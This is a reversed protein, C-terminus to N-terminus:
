NLVSPGIRIAKRVNPVGPAIAGDRSCAGLNSRRCQESKAIHWTWRM